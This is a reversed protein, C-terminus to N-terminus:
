CVLNKYLHLHLSYWGLLCKDACLSPRRCHRTVSLNNYFCLEILCRLSRTYSGSSHRIESVIKGLNDYVFLEFVCRPVDQTFIVPKKGRELLRELFRTLFLDRVFVWLGGDIIGSSNGDMQRTIMANNQLKTSLKTM